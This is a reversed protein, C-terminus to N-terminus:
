PEVNPCVKRVINFSRVARSFTIWPDRVKGLLARALNANMTQTYNIWPDSVKGLSARALNENMRELKDLTFNFHCGPYFQLSM